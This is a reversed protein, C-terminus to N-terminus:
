ANFYAKTKEPSKMLENEYDVFNAFHKLSTANLPKEENIPGSTAKVVWAIPLTKVMNTLHEVNENPVDLYWQLFSIHLPINFLIAKDVILSHRNRFMRYNYLSFLNRSEAPGNVRHTCDFLLYDEQNVWTQAPKDGERHALGNQCWVQQGIQEVIIAPNDNDRHIAGHKAWIKVRDEKALAPQDDFSHFRGKDDRTIKSYFDLPELSRWLNDGPNAGVLSNNEIM